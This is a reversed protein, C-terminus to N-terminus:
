EELSGPERLFIDGPSEPIRPDYQITCKDDVGDPGISHYVPDERVPARNKSFPDIPVKPIYEPVMESISEPERGKELIFLKRATELKLLEYRIEVANQMIYAPDGPIFVYRSYCVFENLAQKFPNLSFGANIIEYTDGASEKKHIYDGRASPDTLKPIFMKEMFEVYVRYQLAAIERGTKGQIEANLGLRMYPLINGVGDTVVPSIKAPFFPESPYAKKQLNQMERLMEADDCSEIIDHWSNISQRLFNIRILSEIFTCYEDSHSARSLLYAKEVAKSTNGDELLYKVKLDYLTNISNCWFFEFVPIGMLGAYAQLPLGAQFARINYDPRNIVDEFATLLPDFNVPYSTIIDIDATENGGSAKTRLSYKKRRLNETFETVEPRFTEATKRFNQAAKITDPHFTKPSIRDPDFHLPQRKWEEYEKREAPTFKSYINKEIYYRVGMLLLGYIASIAILGYM